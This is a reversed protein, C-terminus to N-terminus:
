VKEAIEEVKLATNKLMNEASEIRIRNVFDVFNM